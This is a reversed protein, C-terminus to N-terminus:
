NTEMIVLVKLMKLGKFLKKFKIYILMKNSLKYIWCYGWPKEKNIQKETRKIRYGFSCCFTSVRKYKLKFSKEVNKKEFGEIPNLTM